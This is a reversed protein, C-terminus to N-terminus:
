INSSELELRSFEHKEHVLLGALQVHSFSQSACSFVKRERWESLGGWQGLEALTSTERWAASAASGIKHEYM